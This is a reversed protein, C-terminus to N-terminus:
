ICLRCGTHILPVTFTIYVWNWVLFHQDQRIDAIAWPFLWNLGTIVQSIKLLHKNGWQSSLSGKIIINMPYWSQDFCVKCCRQLDTKSIAELQSQIKSWLRHGCRVALKNGRGGQPYGVLGPVDQAALTRKLCCVIQPATLIGCRGGAALAQHKVFLKAMALYASHHWIDWMWVETVAGNERTSSKM